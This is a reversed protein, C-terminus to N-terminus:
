VGSGMVAGGRNRYLADVDREVECGKGRVDVLAELKSTPRTGHAFPLGSGGQAIM